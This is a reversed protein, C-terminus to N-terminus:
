IRDVHHGELDEVQQPALDVGVLIFNQPDDLVQESLVLDVLVILKPYHPDLIPQMQSRPIYHDIRPDVLAQGTLDLECDGARAILLLLEQILVVVEQILQLSGLKSWYSLVYRDPRSQLLSERVELLQQLILPLALLLEKLGVQLMFAPLVVKFDEFPWDNAIGTKPEERNRLGAQEIHNALLAIFGDAALAVVVAVQIFFLVFLVDKLPVTQELRLYERLQM